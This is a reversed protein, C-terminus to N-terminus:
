GEVATLLLPLLIKALQALSCTSYAYLAGYSGIRDKGGDEYMICRLFGYLLGMQESTTWVTTKQESVVLSISNESKSTILPHCLDIKGDDMICTENSETM